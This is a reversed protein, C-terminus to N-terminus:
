RRRRRHKYGRENQITALVPLGLEREAEGPTDLTRDLYGAVFVTTIALFLGLAISLISIVWIPPPMTPDKPASASSALSVKIDPTRAGKAEAGSLRKQALRFADRQGDYNVVLRDLETNLQALRTIEADLDAKNAKFSDVSAQNAVVATNLQYVLGEYAAKIAVSHREMADDLEGKALIVPDHKETGIFLERHYRSRNRRVEDELNTLLANNALEPLAKILDQRKPDIETISDRRATKSALASQSEALRVDVQARSDQLKGTAEDISNSSLRHAARYEDLIKSAASYSESAAQLDKALAEIEVRHDANRGTRHDVYAQGLLNALTASRESQWDEFTLVVINTNPVGEATFREYLFNMWVRQKMDDSRAAWDPMNPYPPDNMIDPNSAVAQRIERAQFLLIEAAVDPASMARYRSTVPNDFDQSQSSELSAEFRVKSVATYTPPIQQALIYFGIAFVIFVTWYLGRRKYLSTFLDRASESRFLSDTKSDATRSRPDILQDTV